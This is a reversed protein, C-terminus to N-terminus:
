IRAKEMAKWMGYRTRGLEVVIDDEAPLSSPVATPQELASTSKAGSLYREVDIREIRGNKGSGPALLAVDVGSERAFHRVAPLALVDAAKARAATTVSGSSTGPQSTSAKRSESAPRPLANPDLPHPRRAVPNKDSPPQSGPESADPPTDRKHEQSPPQSENVSADRHESVPLDSPNSAEEYVEIVCLDEGVKAVQGEQVLIETVTGDYPSTIEVSAKDSQVECLPDFTSVSSRPSVSRYVLLSRTLHRFLCASDNLPGLVREDMRRTYGPM